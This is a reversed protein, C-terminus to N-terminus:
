RRNLTESPLEGFLRRYDRALQGMHWFGSGNAVHSITLPSGPKILEARVRLLRRRQLHAKPGIGFREKFACNSHMAMVSLPRGPRLRKASEPPGDSFHRFGLDRGAAEGPRDVDTFRVEPLLASDPQAAHQSM